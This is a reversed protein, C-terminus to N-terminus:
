QTPENSLGGLTLSRDTHKQAVGSNEVRHIHLKELMASEEEEKKRGEGGRATIGGGGYRREGEEYNKGEKRWRWSKKQKRKWKMNQKTNSQREQSSIYVLSAEFELDAVAEAKGPSSNIAQIGLLVAKQKSQSISSM